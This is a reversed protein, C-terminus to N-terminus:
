RKPGKTFLSSTSGSKSLREQKRNRYTKGAQRSPTSNNKNKGSGWQMALIFLGYKTNEAGVKRGIKIIKPVFERENM